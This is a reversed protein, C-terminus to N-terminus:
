THPAQPQREVGTVVDFVPLLGSKAAVISHLLMTWLTNIIGSVRVFADDGVTAYVDPDTPHTALGM